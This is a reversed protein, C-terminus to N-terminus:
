DNKAMWEMREAITMPCSDSFVAGMAATLERDGATPVPECIKRSRPIRLIRTIDAGMDCWTDGIKVRM